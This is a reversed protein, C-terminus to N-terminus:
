VPWSLTMSPVSTIRFAVASPRPPVLMWAPPSRLVKPPVRCNAAAFGKVPSVMARFKTRVPAPTAVALEMVVPMWASECPARVLTPLLVMEPETVKEASPASCRM